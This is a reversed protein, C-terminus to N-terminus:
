LLTRARYTCIAHRCFSALVRTRLKKDELVKILRKIFAPKDKYEPM